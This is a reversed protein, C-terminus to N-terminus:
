ARAMSTALRRDLMLRASTVLGDRVTAVWAVEMEVPVGSGLGVGYLRALAVVVDDQDFTAEVEMSLEAWVDTVLSRWYAEVSERGRLVRGDPLESVDIEIDPALSDLGELRRYSREVTSVM